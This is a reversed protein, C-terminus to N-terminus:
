ERVPCLENVKTDVADLVGADAGYKEMLADIKGAEIDKEKIGFSKDIREQEKAHKDPDTYSYLMEACKMQANYEIFQERSLVDAACAPASVFMAALLVYPHRNM